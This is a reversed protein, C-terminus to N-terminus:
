KRGRNLRKIQKKLYKIHKKKKRKRTSLRINDTVIDRIIKSQLSNMMFIQKKLNRCTKKESKYSKLIKQIKDSCTHQVPQLIGTAIPAKKIQSRFGAFVIVTLIAAIIKIKINKM